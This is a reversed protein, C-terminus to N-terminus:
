AAAVAAGKNTAERLVSFYGPAIQM